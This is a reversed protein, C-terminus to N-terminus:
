SDPSWAPEMIGGRGLGKTRTVDHADRLILKENDLDAVWKGDPSRNSQMSAAPDPESVRTPNFEVKLLSHQDGRPKALDIAFVSKGEASFGVCSLGPPLPIVRANGVSPFVTVEKRNCNAPIYPVAPAANRGWSSGALCIFVVGALRRGDGRVGCAQEM